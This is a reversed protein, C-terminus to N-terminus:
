GLAMPTYGDHKAISVDATFQALSRPITLHLKDLLSVNYMMGVAAMADPVAYVRVNRPQIGYSHYAFTAFPSNYDQLLGPRLRTSWAYRRAYPTLDVLEKNQVYVPIGCTRPTAYALDPPTGSGLALLMKTNFDEFGYPHITARVQTQSKNFLAVMSTAWGQEIPDDSSYWITLDRPGSSLKLAVVGGALFVAALAILGFKLLNSSM